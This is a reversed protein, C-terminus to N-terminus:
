NWHLKEGDISIKQQNSNAVRLVLKEFIEKVFFQKNKNVGDKGFLYSSFVDVVDHDNLYIIKENPVLNQLYKKRNDFELFSRSIDYSYPCTREVIKRKKFGNIFREMGLISILLHLNIRDHEYDAKSKSIGSKYSTLQLFLKDMISLRKKGIVKGVSSISNKSDIVRGNLSSIEQQEFDYDMDVVGFCHSLNCKIEGVIFKKGRDEIDCSDVILYKNSTKNFFMNSVPIPILDRGEKLSLVVKADLVGEVLVFKPQISSSLNTKRTDQNNWYSQFYPVLGKENM